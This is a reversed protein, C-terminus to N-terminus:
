CTNNSPPLSIFPFSLFHFKFKSVEVGAKTEEDYLGRIARWGIGEDECSGGVGKERKNFLTYTKGSGTQGYAFVTGNYGNKVATVIPLTTSLYVLSQSSTPPHIGDFTFSPPAKNVPNTTETSPNPNPNTSTSIATEDLNHAGLSVTKGDNMYNIVPSSTNQARDGPTVASPRVKLFTKINQVSNM